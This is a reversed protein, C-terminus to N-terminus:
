PESPGACAAARRDAIAVSSSPRPSNLATRNYRCARYRYGNASPCFALWCPSGRDGAQAVFCWRLREGAAHKSSSTSAASGGTGTAGASAASAPRCSDTAATCASSRPWSSRSSCTRTRWTRSCIHPRALLSCLLACFVLTTLFRCPQPLWADAHCAAWSM